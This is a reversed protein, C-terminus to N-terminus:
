DFGPRYRITSLQDVADRRYVGWFSPASTYRQMVHCARIVPDDGVAELRHERPYTSEVHDSGSFVLAGSHCMACDPRALLVEMLREVYDPAVLDDSTKPLVFDADGFWFARQINAVPGTNCRNRKVHVRPDREAYRQLVDPTGDSSGNDFLTLSLSPW